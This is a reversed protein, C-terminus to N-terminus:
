FQLDFEASIGEPVFHQVSLWSQSLLVVDVAQHTVLAIKLDSFINFILSILYNNTKTRASDMRYLIIFLLTILTDKRINKIKPEYYAKSKILIWAYRVTKKYKM